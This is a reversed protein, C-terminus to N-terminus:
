KSVCNITALSIRHILAHQVRRPCCSDCYLKLPLGNYRRFYGIDVMTDRSNGIDVMTDISYGIDVMTGSSDGIDVM